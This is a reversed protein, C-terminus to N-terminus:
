KTADERTTLRISFSDKLGGTRLASGDAGFYYTANKRRDTRGFVIHGEHRKGDLDLQDRASVELLESNPEDAFPSITQLLYTGKGAFVLSRRVLDAVDTFCVGEEVAFSKEEKVGNMDRVAKVQGNQLTASVRFQWREKPGQKTSEVDVKQTRGDPSFSGRVVTSDKGGEGFDNLLDVEFSYVGESAAVKIRQHGARAKGLLHVSYWTEGLFEPRVRADKLHALTRSRAQSEESTLSMPVIEFTAASAELLPRLKEAEALPAQGDVLYCELNTRPIVHKIQLTDKYTFVIRYAPRGGIAIEKEETVKSEAYEKVIHEKAQAVFTRLPTPTANYTLHALTLHTPVKDKADEAAQFRAIFNGQGERRLWGAPPRIRM